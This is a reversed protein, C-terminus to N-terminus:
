LRSPGLVPRGTLMRRARSDFAQGGVTAFTAVTYPRRTTLSPQSSEKGGRDTAFDAPNAKDFHGKGDNVFIGVLDGSGSSVVLDLNGDGTVDKPTISLEGFPATLRLNQEGGETLRIYIRYDASHSDFRDVEVAALDPHSDGGFDAMAFGFLEAGASPVVSPVFPTNPSNRILPPKRPVFDGRAGVLPVPRILPLVFGVLFLLFASEIRRKALLANM